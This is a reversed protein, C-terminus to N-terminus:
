ISEIMAYALVDLKLMNLNPRRQREFNEESEAEAAMTDVGGHVLADILTCTAHSGATAAYQDTWRM